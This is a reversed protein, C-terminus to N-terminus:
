MVSHLNASLDLTFLYKWVEVIRLDFHEQEANLFVNILQIILRKYRTTISANRTWNISKNTSPTHFLDSM